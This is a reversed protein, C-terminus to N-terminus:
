LGLKVHYKDIYSSFTNIINEDTLNHEELSYHHKGFKHQPNKKLYEEMRYHFHDSHKINFRDYIKEVVNIPDNVLDNYQIDIFNKTPLKNRKEMAIQIMFFLLMLGTSAYELHQKDKIRTCASLSSLGLSINSPLIKRPDRHTVIVNADPFTSILSDLYLLHMPAKLVWRHQNSNNSSQILQLQKKYYAYTPKQDKSLHWKSYSPFRNHLQYVFPTTFSNRFLIGCEEPGEPEVYHIKKRAPINKYVSQIIKETDQIKQEKTKNDSLCHAEWASLFRNEPDCSILNHLLTTGTRPLGTIFFPSKIPQNLITRDKDIRNKVHLRNKLANVVDRNIFYRGIPKYPYEEKGPELLKLYGEKSDSTWDFDHLGTQERSISLLKSSTSQILTPQINAFKPHQTSSPSINLKKM